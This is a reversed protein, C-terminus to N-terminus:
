ATRADLAMMGSLRLNDCAEGRIRRLGRTADNAGSPDVTRMNPQKTQSLVRRSINALCTSVGLHAEASCVCVDGPCGAKHTPEIRKATTTGMFISGKLYEWTM